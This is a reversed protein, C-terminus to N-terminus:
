LREGVLVSQPLRQVRELPVSDRERDRGVAGLHHPRVKAVLELQQLPDARQRGLLELGRVRAPVLGAEDAGSNRITEIVSGIPTRSIERAAWENRERSM